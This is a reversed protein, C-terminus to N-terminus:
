PSKTNHRKQQMLRVFNNVTKKSPKKIRFDDFGFTYSRAKKEADFLTDFSPQFFTNSNLGYYIPAFYSSLGTNSEDDSNEYEEDQQYSNLDTHSEYVNDSINNASISDIAEFHLDPSTFQEFEDSESKKHYKMTSKDCRSLKDSSCLTPVTRIQSSNKNDLISDCDPKKLTEDRPRYSYDSSVRSSSKLSTLSTNRSLNSFTDLYNFRKPQTYGFDDSILSEPTQIALSMKKHKKKIFNKM